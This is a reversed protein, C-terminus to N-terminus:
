ASPEELPLTVATGKGGYSALLIRGKADDRTTGFARAVLDYLAKPLQLEGTMLTHLLNEAAELMTPTVRSGGIEVNSLPSDPRVLVLCIQPKLLPLPLPLSQKLFWRALLREDGTNEASLQELQVTETCELGLMDKDQLSKVIATIKADRAVIQQAVRSAEESSEISM